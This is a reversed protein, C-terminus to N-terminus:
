IVGQRFLVELPMPKGLADYILIAEEITVATEGNLKRCLTKYNIHTKSALEDIKMELILMVVSVNQYVCPKRVM